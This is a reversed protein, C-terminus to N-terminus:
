RLGIPDIPAKMEVGINFFDPSTISSKPKEKPVPKQIKILTKTRNKKNKKADETKPSDIFIPKISVSLTTLEKEKYLSLFYLIILILYLSEIRTKM